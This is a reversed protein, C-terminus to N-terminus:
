LIERLFAMGEESTTISGDLQAEYCRDLLPKFEPGPTMGLAILHRGRILPRPATDKVALAEARELLWRGEPFGEARRGPRGMQDARAVRALRDIRGAKRALRRVAADGAKAKYLELPRLHHEVLPTVADILDQHRTLRRLFSAAPAVGKAEHGISRIREDQYLTTAPKGFDHCLVAFGAVLDEWECGMRERAFADLCHLTHIWVDGEPHWQPDQPCDILAELEPYYQVWGCDKLFALGISPKVGQLLLKKWEEFLREPPLNEPTIERCLAVTASDVTLEFRAAFQMARLVRLPDESFQAGAHRLRKEELDRRGEFPDILEGTLPGWYIANITFDRRAAAEEISLNPDGSVAFGKHGPGTKSERRPLSVDMGFDTLKFVGFARGVAAVKFRQSLLKGLTEAPVGFVELDLNVPTLGLLADRVAGGVLWARGGAERVLAAIEMAPGLEKGSFSGASVGAFNATDGRKM